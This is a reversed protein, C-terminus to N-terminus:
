KVKRNKLYIIVLWVVLILSMISVLLINFHKIFEILKQWNSKVLYMGGILTFYWIMFSVLSLGTMRAVPVKGIGATIAILSRLGPIFRSALLVSYGWKAFWREIREMNEPKFYSNNYKQFFARGRTYGLYYLVMAGSLGGVTASLFVFLYDLDGTGAMFAGALYILDSPWPPFVNEIFTSMGIIAYIAIAQKTALYLLIEEFSM